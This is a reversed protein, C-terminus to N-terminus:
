FDRASFFAHAFFTCQMKNRREVLFPADNERSHSFVTSLFRGALQKM